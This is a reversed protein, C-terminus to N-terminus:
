LRMEATRAENLKTELKNVEASNTGYASKASELQQELNHVSRASLELQEGLHRQQMQLTESASLSDGLAVREQELSSKL